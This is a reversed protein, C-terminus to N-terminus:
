AYNRTTLQMQGDLISMEILEVFGLIDAQIIEREKSNPPADELAAYMMTLSVCM